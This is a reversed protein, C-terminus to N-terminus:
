NRIHKAKSVYFLIKFYNKPFVANEFRFMFDIKMQTCLNKNYKNGMFLKKKLTM